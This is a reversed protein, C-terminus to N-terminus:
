RKLSGVASSAVKAELSRVSSTMTHPHNVRAQVERVASELAKIAEITEKSVEMHGDILNQIQEQYHKQNDSAQAMLHNVQEQFASQTANLRHNFTEAILTLSSQTKEQQKLFLIVTVILAGVGGGGPLMKLLEVEM